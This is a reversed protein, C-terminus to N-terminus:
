VIKVGRKLSLCGMTRIKEKGGGREGKGIVGSIVNLTRIRREAAISIM